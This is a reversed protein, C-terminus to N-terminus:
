SSSRQDFRLHLGNDGPVSGFFPDELALLNPTPLTTIELGKIQFHEIVTGSSTVVYVIVQDSFSCRILYTLTSNPHNPDNYGEFGRPFVRLDLDPNYGFRQVLNAVVLSVIAGQTLMIEPTVYAHTPSRGAEYDERNLEHIETNKQEFWRHTLAALEKVALALSLVLDTNELYPKGHEWLMVAIQPWSQAVPPIEYTHTLVKRDPPPLAESSKLVQESANALYRGLEDFVRSDGTLTSDTVGWVLNGESDFHNAPPMVIIGIAQELDLRYALEQNLRESESLQRERDGTGAV